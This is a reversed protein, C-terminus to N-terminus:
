RKKNTQSKFTNKKSALWEDVHHIEWALKRARNEFAEREYDKSLKENKAQLEALDHELESRKTRETSSAFKEAWQYGTKRSVGATECVSKVDFDKDLGKDKQIRRAKILIAVEEPTLSESM